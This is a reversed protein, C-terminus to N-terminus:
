PYRLQFFVNANAPNIVITENTVSASGPVPFWSGTATLGVSNTYLQWGMHDPAWSFQLSGGAAVATFDATAPDTNVAANTNVLSISGNVGLKSTDWYESVPLVPLNTVAFSGSVAGNFLQFVTTSGNAFATDGLNTVTLTGGYVISSATLSDNATSNTRNIGFVNTSHSEFTASGNITLGSGTYNNIDSAHRGPAVTGNTVVLNGNLTGNGYLTQANIHGLYLTGGVQSVDMIGPSVLTYNSSVLYNAALANTTTLPAFALTGNSVVCQGSWSLVTNTLTLTGTGIKRVGVADVIQGGYTTSTNLGGIAYIVNAGANQSSGAIEATNDGGALSGFPFVNGTGVTTSGYLAVTSANTIDLIVAANPLGLPGDYGIGGGSTNIHQAFTITGTFASANGFTVRNRVYNPQYILNGSGTLTASNFQGRTAGYIWATTNTTVTLTGVTTQLTPSTTTGTGPYDSAAVALIANTGTMMVNQSGLPNGGISDTGLAGPSSSSDTGLALTANSITIGGGFTNPFALAPVANVPVNLILESGNIISLAVKGSGANNNDLIQGNYTNTTGGNITLTSTGSGNNVILGEVLTALGSGTNSGSLSPVTINNGNLDLTGVSSSGNTNDNLVLATGPIASASGLALTGGSVVTPGAYTGTGNLTVTGGLNTVSGSGSINANVAVSGGVDFLLGGNDTVNGTGLTGAVGNGVQLLNGTSAITIPGSYAANNGALVLTGVGSQILSGSGSISGAITETNANSVVLTGNNTVSGVGIMGDDNIGGDGNLQIAGGNITTSGSYDNVTQLILTGPGNKTLSAGGSIKNVGSGGNAGLTYNENTVNVTVAAPYEVIDLNVAPSASGSDDFTVFAGQTYLAGGQWISSATTDWLNQSGDGKWTLSPAIGPYVYLDLENPTSNTLVALQGSQLFGIAILNNALTGNLGNTAYVLPYLGNALPSGTVNVLVNGSNQNLAGGVMIKDSTSNGVDFVLNGGNVNLDNNLTLTGIVGNTGPTIKASNAVTVTGNIAGSGALIESPLTSRLTVGGAASADFLAGANVVIAATNPISGSASLALTGSNVITDGSYTENTQLIVTGSGNQVVGGIGSIVGGYGLTGNNDFVLTGSDVVGTINSISGTAGGNGVQLTGASITVLGQLTNDATLTLTGTGLQTIGGLGSVAGVSTSDPRNFSLTGGSDIISSSTSISGSAAGAGVQLSGANIYTAGTYTNNNTLILTGGLGGLTLATASGNDAIVSGITLPSAILNQLVILDAGAAGKLTGGTITSSGTGATSVLLGGSLITLTTGATQNVTVPGQLKLTYINSSGTVAFTVNTLAINNTSVFNTINAIPYGTYNYVASAPAAAPYNTAAALWDSGDHAWGGGLLGNIWPISNTFYVGNNVTSAKLTFNVYLSSGVSRNINAGITMEALDNAGRNGLTTIQANAGPNLTIGSFSDLPSTNAVTDNLNLIGNGGFVLQGPAVGDYVTQNGYGGYSGLTLTGGNITVPGTFANPNNLTVSGPGNVTIGGGGSIFAATSAAFTYNTLNNNFTMSSPTVPGFLNVTGFGTDDFIVNDLSFFYDPSGNNKWNQTVDIDWSDNAASTASWIISGPNATGGATLYVNKSDTTVNGTIGRPAIVVFNAASSGNIDGGSTVLNASTMLTYQGSALTGAAPSVVINVTDGINLTGTVDILDNSGGGAVTNSSLLFNLNNVSGLSNDLTLNGNVTFTAYGPPPAVPTFSGGYLSFNGNVDANIVSVISNSSYTLSVVNTTISDINTTGGSVTENTTYSYNTTTAVTYDAYAPNYSGYYNTYPKTTTGANLNFVAQPYYGNVGLSTVDLVAGPAIIMSKSNLGLSGAPGVKLTGQSITTLGSFYNNGDLEETGFGTKTLAITGATEHPNPGINGSFVANSNANGVTLNVLANSSDDVIGGGELGNMTESAVGNMDLTGNLLVNGVSPGNPIHNGSVSGGFQLTGSQVIVSDQVNFIGNTAYTYANNTTIVNNTIVMPTGNVILNTTYTTNTSVTINTSTITTVITNTGFTNGASGASPGLRTIGGNNVTLTGGNASSIIGNLYVYGSGGITLNNGNGLAVTGSITTINNATGGTTNQFTQSTGLTLPISITNSGANDTIGNTIILANGSVVFGSANFNISDIQLGSFNNAPNLQTSGAFILDDGNTTVANDWNAATGWNNDAGLGNWTDTQVGQAHAMSGWCLIALAVLLQLCSRWSGATHLHLNQIISIKTKMIKLNTPQVAFRNM